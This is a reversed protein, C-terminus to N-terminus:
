AYIIFYILFALSYLFIFILLIVAFVTKDYWFSKRKNIPFVSKINKSFTMFLFMGISYIISLFVNPLQQTWEYTIYIFAGEIFNTIFISALLMKTVPVANNKLDYLLKIAYFHFGVIGIYYIIQLIFIFFVGDPNHFYVWLDGLGLRVYFFASFFLALAILQVWSNDIKPLTKHKLKDM